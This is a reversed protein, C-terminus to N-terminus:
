DVCWADLGHLDWRIFDAFHDARAAFDDTLDNFHRARLDVDIVFADDLNSARVAFRDLFGVVHNVRNHSLWFFALNVVTFNHFDDVEACKHVEKALTVAKYVHALNLATAQVM